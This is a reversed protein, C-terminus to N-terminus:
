GLAKLLTNNEANDRCAAYNGTHVLGVPWFGKFEEVDSGYSATTGGVHPSKHDRHYTGTKFSSGMANARSGCRATVREVEPRAAAGVAKALALGDWHIRAM